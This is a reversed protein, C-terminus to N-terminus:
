NSFEIGAAKLLKMLRYFTSKSHEAKASELGKSQIVGLFLALQLGLKWGYKTELLEIEPLERDRWEKRVREKEKAELEISIDIALIEDLSSVEHFHRDVEYILHFCWNKHKKQKNFIYSVAEDYDKFRRVKDHSTRACPRDRANDGVAWGSEILFYNDPDNHEFCRWDEVTYGDIYILINGKFENM